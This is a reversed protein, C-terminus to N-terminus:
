DAAAALQEASMSALESAEVWGALVKGRLSGNRRLGKSIERIKAPYGQSEGHCVHHVAEEIGNVIVKLHEPPDGASSSGMMSM